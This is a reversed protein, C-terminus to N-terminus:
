PLLVGMFMGELGQGNMLVSLTNPQAAQLMVTGTKDSSVTAACEVSNTGLSVLYSSYYSAATPTNCANGYPSSTSNPVLTLAPDNTGNTGCSSGNYAVVSGNTLLSGQVTTVPNTGSSQVISPCTTWTISENPDTSEADGAVLQWGTALTGATNTIQIKTFYLYTLGAQTQYLSPSGPIGVYFGSNGLFAEGGPPSTWTPITHSVVNAGSVKICMSLVFPTGTIAASLPQYGSCGNTAGGNGTSAETWNFSSFDVFCLSSNGTGPTAFGCNATPTAITLQTGVANGVPAATLTYSYSSGPETASFAVNTIGQSSIWGSYSNLSSPNVAVCTSTAGSPLCGAPIGTAMTASYVAASSTGQCYERLLQYSTSGPQPQLVYSVTTQYLTTNSGPSTYGGWELGLVQTGAGCAATPSTTIQQTQQVDKIYNASVIQADATDSLSKSVTAQQTLVEVLAFAIAGVVIPMIVMVVLLEVLTVGAEEGLSSMRRARARRYRSVWSM